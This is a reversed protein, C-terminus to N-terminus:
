VIWKRFLLIGGVTELRLFIIIQLLFHLFALLTLFVIFDELNILRLVAMDLFENFLHLFIITLDTLLFVEFDAFM